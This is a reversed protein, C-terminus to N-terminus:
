RSLSIQSWRCLACPVCCCLVCLAGLTCAFRLVIVVADVGRHRNENGVDVVATARTERCDIFSGSVWESGAYRATEPPIMCVTKRVM